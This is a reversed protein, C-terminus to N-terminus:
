PAGVPLVYYMATPDGNAGNFLHSMICLRLLVMLNTLCLYSRWYTLLLVNQVKNLLMMLFPFYVGCLLTNQEATLLM